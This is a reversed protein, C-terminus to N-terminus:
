CKFIKLIKVSIHINSFTCIKFIMKSSQNKKFRFMNSIKVEELCHVFKLIMVEEFYSCIDFRINELVMLLQFHNFEFFIMNKFVNLNTFINL